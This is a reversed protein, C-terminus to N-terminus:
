EVGTKPISYYVTSSGSESSGSPNTKREIFFYSEVSGDKFTLKISHKGVSLKNLYSPKLTIIVSGIRKEYEDTVINDIAVSVLNNFTEESRTLYM